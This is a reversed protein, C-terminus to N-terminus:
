PGAAPAVPQSVVADTWPLLSAATLGVGTVPEILEQGRRYVTIWSLEPAISDDSATPPVIPWRHDRPGELCQRLFPLLARAHGPEMEVTADARPTDGDQFAPQRRNLALAFNWLVRPHRGRFAPVYAVCGAGRVRYFPLNVPEEGCVPRSAATLGVSRLHELRGPRAQWCRRCTPCAHVRALPIWPLPCSCEPCILPQLVDDSGGPFGNAQAAEPEPRENAGPLEGSNLLRKALGTAGDLLVAETGRNNRYPVVVLPYYLLQLEPFPAYLAQGTVEDEPLAISSVMRQLLGHMAQEESMEPTWFAPPPTDGDVEPTGSREMLQPLPVVELVQARFGLQRDGVKLSTSAEITQDWLGIRYRFEGETQPAGLIELAGDGQEDPRDTERWCHWTEARLRFYPAYVLRPALLERLRRGEHYLIRKAEVRWTQATGRVPVAYRAAGGRRLVALPIGCFACGIVRDGEEHSIPGGCSPCSRHVRLNGHLLGDRPNNM